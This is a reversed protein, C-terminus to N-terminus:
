ADLWNDLKTEILGSIQVRLAENTVTDVVESLFARTLMSMAVKEDIGRSRLYFLSNEDIQGCAAGHGCKM